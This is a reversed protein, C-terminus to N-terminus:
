KKEWIYDINYLYRPFRTIRRVRYHYNLAEWSVVSRSSLSVGATANLLKLERDVAEWLDFVWMPNHFRHFSVPFLAAEVRFGRGLAYFINLRYFGLHYTPTVSDVRKFCCALRIDGGGKTCRAFCSDKDSMELLDRISVIAARNLVIGGGGDVADGSFLHRAGLPEGMYVPAVNGQPADQLAVRLNHPIMFTDDDVAVYWPADLPTSTILHRMILLLKGAGHFPTRINKVPLLDLPVVTANLSFGFRLSLSHVVAEAAELYSREIYVLVEEHKLWTSLVPVLRTDMKRPGALVLFVIRVRPQLRRQRSALAYTVASAAEVDLPAWSGGLRCVGPEVVAVVCWELAYCALQCATTANGESSGLRLEMAERPLQARGDRRIFESIASAPNTTAIRLRESMLQPPAAGVQRVFTTTKGIPVLPSSANKLFCTPIGRWARLVAAQCEPVVACMRTCMAANRVRGQLIDAGVVEVGEKTIYSKMLHKNDNDDETENGPHSDVSQPRLTAWKATERQSDENSQEAGNNGQQQLADATAPTDESENHEIEVSTPQVDPIGGKLPQQTGQKNYPPVEATTPLAAPSADPQADVKSVISSDLVYSVFSRMPRIARTPRSLYCRRSGHMVVVGCWDLAYCAALCNSESSEGLFFTLSDPFIRARGDVRSFESVAYHADAVVAALRQSRLEPAAVGTRRVFTTTKGIPVLPSSANKLICTPIGRWARFVAAQCEPVVACMRICMGAHRVRAQLIDAAKIEAGQNVRFLARRLSADDGTLGLAEDDEPSYDPIESSTKIGASDETNEPKSFDDAVESQERQPDESSQEAGNNGQQPPPESTAPTDESENHEIEVSTPQVDPIGGKLPQQTGQKNYPPAEATTPLAAPSADPQTKQEADVKSVISSDLVYSVFSRMPRIARTPRSLYCRRSHMVVVGCWDLAYCAALCNSESPAGLFFTLSDPFIRARGDVRSFESVAYHADAVVAALRQSRLEPAAVGTRRVFTTTKGIPVLPSSANKLICTPIGRWARFVAAQCEPVVACMRICMAANRVRALLIDAAKIEAGQNVRFLARRLSADDGTLGLAEDDEPSYDETNPSGVTADQGYEAQKIADEKWADDNPQESSDSERISSHPDVSPLQLVAASALAYSVHLRFPSISTAYAEKMPEMQRSRSLYCRRERQVVVISCWSFAYCIALCAGESGEDGIRVVVPSPAILARGHYRNFVVSMNQRTANRLRESMVQSLPADSRRVFTTTKGTPVLPSSANKLICTPIDRWEHFVAAQCEPVVYCMRICMAANRVRAQLIDYGRTDSGGVEFGNREQFVTDRLTHDDAVDIDDNHSISTPAESIQLLGRTCCSRQASAPRGVNM